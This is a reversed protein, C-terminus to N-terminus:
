DLFPNNSNKKPPPDEDFSITVTPTTPRQGLTLPEFAIPISEVSLAETGQNSTEPVEGPSSDDKKDDAKSEQDKNKRAEWKRVLFSKGTRDRDGSGGRTVDGDEKTAKRMLSESSKSKAKGMKDEGDEEQALSDPELLSNEEAEEYHWSRRRLSKPMAPLPLKNAVNHLGSSLGKGARKINDLNSSASLRLEASIRRVRTQMPSRLSGSVLGDDEHSNSQKVDGAKKVDGGVRSDRHLDGNSSDGADNDKEPTAEFPNSLLTPAYTSSMM